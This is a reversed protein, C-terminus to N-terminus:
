MPAGQHVKSFLPVDNKMKLQTYLMRRLSVTELTKDPDLVLSFSFEMIGWIGEYM